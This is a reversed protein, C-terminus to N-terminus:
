YKYGFGLGIFKDKLWGEKEKEKVIQRRVRKWGLMEKVRESEKNPVMAPLSRTGEEENEKWYDQRTM